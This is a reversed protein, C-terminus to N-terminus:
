VQAVSVTTSVIYMARQCSLPLLLSKRGEEPNEYRLSLYKRHMKLMKIHIEFIILPQHFQYM